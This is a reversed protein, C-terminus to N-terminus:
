RLLEYLKARSQAAEAQEKAQRIQAEVLALLEHAGFPKVLYGSAGKSLGEVRSEEGGRASLLIVPLDFTAQDSRLAALLGFGDLEPMMIDSIVLDPRGVAIRSLAEAGNQVADVDWRASLLRCVYARMGANDDAVLIKPRQQAPAPPATEIERVPTPPEPSAPAPMTTGRLWRSAEQAYLAAAGTVTPAADSTALRDSPLHDSGTPITVSVTTGVDLESAVTIVGGHLKVLEQVLALGIGAGEHTRARTAPVRRFREFVSPLHEAAIGAGTDRVTCAVEAGKLCLGLEIEGDFTYKFANSLLNLVIKEWMDQDIWTEADIRDIREVFRLGAREIVSRFAIALDTTVAALDVRRYTAESRGVEIRSFDLLTNVLKLLRNANQQLVELRERRAPTSANDADALAEEIPGIMLTLPTRFEHSVNSLFLTKARDIEVLAAARRREDEIARAVAVANAVQVAVLDFFGAYDADFQRRPSIGAVLFGAPRRHGAKVIPLVRAETPSEPWPGGPLAGFLFPLDKVVVPEGRTFVAGLPWGGTAITDALVITDPSVPLGPLLGASGQLRATPRGDDLLYILAFPVDHPNGALALASRECAQDATKCEATGAALDRLTRLRRDGLVRRTDDSCTCFVGGVSGDDNTAPSFAFTFYTEEAYGYRETILLRERNFTALGHEMVALPGFVDWIDAWAQSGPRGLAEPHRKGLFGRYADNYIKILERGWWVCMPFRSHLINRVAFKLSQPWQDVPGLPTQAWDFARMRGAMEGDGAFVQDPAQPM